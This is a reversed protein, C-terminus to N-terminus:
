LATDPPWPFLKTVKSAYSGYISRLRKKPRLRLDRWMEASMTTWTPDLFPQNAPSKAFTVLRWEAPEDYDYHEIWVLRDSPIDFRSCVQFCLAEVCNTISNGPNGATAICIVVIRGDPLDIREILCVGDIRNPAKYAFFEPEDASQWLPFRWPKSVFCLKESFRDELEQYQSINPLPKLEAVSSMSAHKAILTSDRNKEYLRDRYERIEELLLGKSQSTRSDYEDHHELCLFVLNEFRSDTPDRNLHAIQGKRIDNRNNL